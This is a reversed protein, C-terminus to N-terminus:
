QTSTGSFDGSFALLDQMPWLPLFLERHPYRVPQSVPATVQLVGPRRSSRIRLEIQTDTRNQRWALTVMEAPGGRGRGRRTLKQRLVNETEQHGAAVVEGSDTLNLQPLEHRSISSTWGPRSGPAVFRKPIQLHLSVPSASESDPPNSLTSLLLRLWQGVAPKASRWQQGWANVTGANSPGLIVAWGQGQQALMRTLSLSQREPCGALDQGSAPDSLIELRLSKDPGVIWGVTGFAHYTFASAQWCSTQLVGTLDEPEPDVPDAMACTALSWLGWLSIVLGTLRYM